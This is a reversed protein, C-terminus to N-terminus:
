ALGLRQLSEGSAVIAEENSRPQRGLAKARASSAESKIGLRPVAERAMPNFLALTQVLWSPLRRPVATGLRRHLIMAMQHLSLSEGAVAIFREGSAARSLYESFKSKSESINITEM